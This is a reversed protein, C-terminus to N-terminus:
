SFSCCFPYKSIALIGGKIYEHSSDTNTCYFIGGAVSRANSRTLYSADSYVRLQMDCAHFVLKHVPYAALYRLIRIVSDMVSQTPNCQLSAVHGVATLTTYNV